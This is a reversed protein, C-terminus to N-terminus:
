RALDKTSPISEWVRHDPGGPRADWTGLARAAAELLVALGVDALGRLGAPRAERIARLIRGLSMTSAAHGSARRLRLHGAHIRRRQALYDRLTEPGRMSVRAGPVYVRRLGRSLVLSEILAEDVATDVPMAGFVPRFAVLEGLKPEVLAVRHHLEWLLRVVRGLATTEPNVPVPRGGTMGVSPDDFPAVLAELSGPMPRTDGGVLVVADARGVAELFRGIAAAKGARTPEELIEVRPDGEAAVRARPVTDDTCGSAVVRVVVDALRPGRQGRIAAVAAAINAEENYAFIGVAIRM